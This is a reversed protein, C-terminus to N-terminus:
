RARWIGLDDLFVEKGAGAAITPNELVTRWAAAQFEELTIDASGNNYIVFYPGGAVVVGSTFLSFGGILTSLDPLRVTLATTNIYEIYLGHEIQVYNPTIVQGAIHTLGGGFTILDSHAVNREGAVVPSMEEILDISYTSNRFGDYTLGLLDDASKGFRVNVRFECGATVAGTTPATVFSVRGIQHDITYDANLVKEEGDSFISVSGVLPKLLVRDFITAGSTYRKKLTFETKSGDATGINADESSPAGVHNGGTTFDLPDRILFSHASGHRCLIFEFLEIADELSISNSLTYRRRGQSWNKKRVGEVGSGTDPVFTQHGPGAVSGFGIFKSDLTVNHLGV